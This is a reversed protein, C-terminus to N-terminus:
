CRGMYLGSLIWDPLPYLQPSTPQSGCWIQRLDFFLFSSSSILGITFHELFWSQHNGPSHHPCDEPVPHHINFGTVSSRLLSSLVAIQTSSVRSPGFVTEVTKKRSRKPASLELPPKPRSSAVSKKGKPNQISKRLPLQDFDDKEDHLNRLAQSSSM